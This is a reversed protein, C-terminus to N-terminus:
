LNERKINKIKNKAILFEDYYRLMVLGEKFGTSISPKEGKIIKLLNSIVSPDAKMSLISGGGFRPNIELFKIDGREDKICQLCSPGFLKLKKVIKKSYKIIKEDDVTVGKTSIGSETSLRARPVVSLSWGNEDALVDITYEIGKVYEQLIIDDNKNKLFDLQKKNNVLHIGRGGRGKRPKVICPFVVSSNKKYIELTPIDNKKFFAATKLKDFCIKVSKYDPCIIKADIDKFLDKNKSFRLIEEEPGSIIADPKETKCIKLVEDIFHPDDGRPIVFGKECLYLGASYPDCDLGIVYVDKKQLERILGMASLCGSATRIIKLSKNKM